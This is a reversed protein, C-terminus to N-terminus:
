VMALVHPASIAVKAIATLAASSAGAAIEPANVM